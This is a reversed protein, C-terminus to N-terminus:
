SKDMRKLHHASNTASRTSAESNEFKEQHHDHGREGLLQLQSEEVFLGCLEETVDDPLCQVVPTLSSLAAVVHNVVEDIGHVISLLIDLLHVSSTAGSLTLKLLISGYCSIGLHSLFMIMKFFNTFTVFVRKASSLMFQFCLYAYM